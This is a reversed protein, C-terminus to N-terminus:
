FSKRTVSMVLHGNNFIWKVVCFHVKSWIQEIEPVKEIIDTVVLNKKLKNMVDKM